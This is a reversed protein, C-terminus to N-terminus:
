YPRTPESIHILSLNLGEESVLHAEYWSYAGKLPQHPNIALYTHGDVTKNSNLAFANSGEPLNEEFLSITGPVIRALNEPVDALLAIAFIYSKIMDKGDIPFLGKTM